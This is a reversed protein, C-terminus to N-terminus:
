QRSITLKTGLVNNSV